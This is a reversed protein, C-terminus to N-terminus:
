GHCMFIPGLVMFLNMLIVDKSTVRYFVVYTMIM